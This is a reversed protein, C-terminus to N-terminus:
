KGPSYGPYPPRKNAAPDKTQKPKYLLGYRAMNSSATALNALTASLNARIEEDKLMAGALGKGQDLGKVLGSV